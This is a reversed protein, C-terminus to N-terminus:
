LQPEMNFDYGAGLLDMMWPDDLIDMDVSDFELTGLQQQELVGSETVPTETFEKCATAAINAVKGEWWDGIGLARKTTYSWPDLGGLEDADEEEETLREREIGAAKPVADWRQAMLQSVEAIDLESRM